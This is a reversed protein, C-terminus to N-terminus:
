NKNDHNGREISELDKRRRDGTRRNGQPLAASQNRQLRRDNLPSRKHYRRVQVPADNFLKGDLERLVSAIATHPHITVLGHLECEDTDRNRLILIRAGEVRPNRWLWRFMRSWGRFGGEVFDQLEPIQTDPPVNRIFLTVSAM